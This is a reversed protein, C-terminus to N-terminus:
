TYMLKVFDTAWFNIDLTHQDIIMTYNCTKNVGSSWLIIKKQLIGFNFQSRWSRCINRLYSRSYLFQQCPESSPLPLLSSYFHTNPKRKFYYVRLNLRFLISPWRIYQGSSYPLLKRQFTPANRSFQM